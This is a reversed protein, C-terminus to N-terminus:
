MDFFYILQTKGEAWSGFSAFSTRAGWHQMCCPADIVSACAVWTACSKHHFTVLSRTVMWYGTPQQLNDFIKRREWVYKLLVISLTCTRTWLSLSYILLYGIIIPNDNLRRWGGRRSLIKTLKLWWMCELCVDPCLSICRLGDCRVRLQVQSPGRRLRAKTKALFGRGSKRCHQYYQADFM